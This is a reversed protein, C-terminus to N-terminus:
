STLTERSLTPAVETWWWALVRHAQQSLLPPARRSCLNISRKASLRACFMYVLSTTPSNLPTPPRFWSFFIIFCSFVSCFHYCSSEVLLVKPDNLYQVFLFLFFCKLHHRSLTTEHNKRVQIPEKKYLIFKLSFNDRCFHTYFFLLFVFFSTLRTITFYMIPIDVERHGRKDM